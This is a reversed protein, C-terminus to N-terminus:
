SKVNKGVVVILRNKLVYRYALEHLQDTFEDPVSCAQPPEQERGLNYWFVTLVCLFAVLTRLPTVRFRRRSWHNMDTIKSLLVITSM